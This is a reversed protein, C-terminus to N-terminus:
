LLDQVRWGRVCLGHEALWDLHFPDSADLCVCWLMTQSARVHCSFDVGEATKTLGDRESPESPHM